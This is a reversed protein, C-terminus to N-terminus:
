THPLMGQIIAEEIDYIKSEERIAWDSLGGPTVQSPERGDDFMQFGVMFEAEDVLQSCIMHKDTKIYNTIFKPKIHFKALALALYDLFSYPIGELSRGAADIAIRQEPTLPVKVFVTHPDNLYNSLPVIRAGRPEAELVENNSLVLFAHEYESSNGYWYQGFRILRGFPGHVRTLGFDGAEITM